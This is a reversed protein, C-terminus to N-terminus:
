DAKRAVQSAYAKPTVGNWAKFARNFARFDSFGLEEAVDAM